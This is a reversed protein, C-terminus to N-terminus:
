SMVKAPKMALLKMAPLSYRKLLLSARKWDLCHRQSRRRLWKIWVKEVVFRFRKLAASNGSIGFYAYHGRVKRCLAMYQEPLPQHRNTRCWQKIALVSRAFRSKMTKRKISWGGRRNKRWYHTFGLFDVSAKKKPKFETVCTKDPHLQLHYRGFRKPLVEMVRAADRANKMLLVADDAFRILTANSNLLRPKVEQEFWQDLVYHLYVNALLPSAVGGQPTGQEPYHLNGGEMVGAKLWKNILRLIVGDGIRQQLFERLQRKDLNDFFGQIDMEIAQGGGGVTLQRYMLDLAQHTSRGPRYGFSHPHFLPEYLKELIWVVARQLVKDEFTPIGIPRQSKGKPVYGRKVPPARYSGNKVRVLLSALNDELDQAYDAATQGDVGTAGDKRTRHFAARLLDKTLYQNLNTFCRQPHDKGLAALRLLSTSMADSSQTEQM